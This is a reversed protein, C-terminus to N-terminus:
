QVQTDTSSTSVCPLDEANLSEKMINIEDNLSAITVNSNYLQGNLKTIEDNLRSITNQLVEIKTDGLIVRSHLDEIVAKQRAIYVNIFENDM